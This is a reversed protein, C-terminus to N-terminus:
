YRAVARAIAWFLLGYSVLTTALYNASLGSMPFPSGSLLNDRYGNFIIFFVTLFLMGTISIDVLGILNLFVVVFSANCVVVIAYVATKKDAEVFECVQAGWRINEMFILGHIVLHFGVNLTNPLNFQLQLFLALVDIWGLIILPRYALLRDPVYTM